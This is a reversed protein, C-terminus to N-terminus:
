KFRIEEKGSYIISLPIEVKKNNIKLVLIGEECKVIEGSLSKKGEVPESLHVIVPHGSIRKYDRETKLPRDIGPSSVELTYPRDPSFQESDLLDSIERSVMECNKITVGEPSDITIRLISRPGANFNRLDFLEFGLDEIKREIVPKIAEISSM